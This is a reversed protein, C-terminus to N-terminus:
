KVLERLHDSWRELADRKESLYDHRDYTGPIREQAHNLVREAIHPAIGIRALGTRCTRRLDHLTFEAIGQREFRSATKAIGRTLLKAELHTTGRKDPLVWPSTGALSKLHSFETAAWDSLPVDHGRGNKSNEPPIHWIREEFSVDVWRAAALEGRRQGTLLLLTVVHALREYRTAAIPNKLFAKLEADTLIRERPKERGGPREQFVVPSANILARAVGFRFMQTLLAAVRNALVPAKRDIITDVLEVIERSTISRADREGFCPLINSRILAETYEPKKHRGRVRREVFEQALFAVTHTDTKSVQQPLRNRATPAARRPDIGQRAMERLRQATERASALPMEPYKGLTLLGAEGRFKFRLLWTRSVTRKGNRVLLQLGPQAPDTHAGPPKSELASATFRNGSRQM